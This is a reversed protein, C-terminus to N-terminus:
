RRVSNVATSLSQILPHFGFKDNELMGNEVARAALSKVFAFDKGCRVGHTLRLLKIVLTRIEQKVAPTMESITNM